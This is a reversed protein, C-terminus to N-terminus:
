EGIESLERVITYAIMEIDTPEDEALWQFAAIQLNVAADKLYSYKTTSLPISYHVLLTDNNDLIDISYWFEPKNLANGGHNYTRKYHMDIQVKYANETDGLLNKEKLKNNLFEIFSKKLEDENKFTQNELNRGHGHTLTLKFEDIVFKAEGKKIPTPEVKYDYMSGCGVFLTVLFAVFVYSLAKQINRM